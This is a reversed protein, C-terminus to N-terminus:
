RMYLLLSRPENVLTVRDRLAVFRFCEVDKSDDKLTKAIMKIEYDAVFRTGIEIRSICDRELEVGELKLRVALAKQSLHMKIRAERIREGSINKKGNFDYIKM